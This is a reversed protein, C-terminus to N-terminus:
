NGKLRKQKDTIRNCCRWSKQTRLGVREKRDRKLLKRGLEGGKDDKLIPAGSRWNFGQLVTQRSVESLVLHEM